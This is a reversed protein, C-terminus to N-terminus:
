ASYFEASRGRCSHGTVTPNKNRIREDDGIIVISPRVSGDYHAEKVVYQERQTKDHRRRIIEPPQPPPAIPPVTKALPKAMVIALELLGDRVALGEPHMGDTNALDIYAGLEDAREFGPHRLRLNTTEVVVVVPM